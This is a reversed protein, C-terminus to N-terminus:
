QGKLQEALRTWEAAQEQAYTLWKQRDKKKAFGALVTARVGVQSQRLSEWKDPKVKMAQVQDLLAAVDSGSNLLTVVQRLQQISLKRVEAQELLYTQWEPSLGRVEIHHSLSLNERRRSIEINRAVSTWNQLTGAPVELVESAQQYIADIEGWRQATAYVLMDGVVWAFAQQIAKLQMMVIGWDDVSLGNVVAGVRTFQIANSSLAVVAAGEDQKARIEALEAALRENQARLDDIRPDDAAVLEDFDIQPNGSYMSGAKKAAVPGKGSVLSRLDDQKGM